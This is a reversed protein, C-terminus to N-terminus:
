VSGSIELCFIFQGREILLSFLVEVEDLSWSRKDKFLTENRIWVLSSIVKYYRRGRWNNRMSKWWLECDDSSLGKSKEEREIDWGWVMRLHCIGHRTPHSLMMNMDWWGLFVNDKDKSWVLLPSPLFCCNMFNFDVNQLPYDWLTSKFVLLQLRVMWNRHGSFKVDMPWVFCIFFFALMILWSLVRSSYQTFM